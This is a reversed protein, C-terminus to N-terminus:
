QNLKIGGDRLNLRYEEDTMGGEMWAKTLERLDNYSLKSSIFEKNLTIKPAPSGIWNAITSYLFNFAKEISYALDVLNVADSNYRLQVTGEAESGRLSTDMLQASFQSMQGEKEKLASSLSTLGQGQFELYFASAKDSPIIWASPSGIYMKDQANAGTVVPQPLGVFHRGLELDASTRLHSISIEAIDIMTPKKPSVDLGFSSCCAFPIYNITKGFISPAVVGLSTGNDDYEEVVYTGEIIYHKFYSIKEEYALTTQDIEFYKQVLIVSILNGDKDKEWNFIQETKLPIIYPMNTLGDISVIGGVRNVALAESMFLKLEEMFSSSKNPSDSFYGVMDPSINEIVPRKSMLLGCNTNLIRSPMNYFLAREVYNDYDENKQSKLRPIYYERKGSAKLAKTGEIVDRIKTWEPLYYAYEPHVSFKLSEVSNLLYKQLEGM